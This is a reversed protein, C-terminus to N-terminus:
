LSEEISHSLLGLLSSASRQLTISIESLIGDGFINISSYIVKLLFTM